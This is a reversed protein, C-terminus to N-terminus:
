KLISQNKILTLNLSNLILKTMYISDIIFSPHNSAASKNYLRIPFGDKSNTKKIYWDKRKEQDQLINLKDGSQLKLLEVASKNFGFTGHIVNIRLLPIDTRLNITNALDFKKLKM